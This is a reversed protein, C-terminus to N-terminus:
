TSAKILADRNDRAKQMKSMSPFKEAVVEKSVYM